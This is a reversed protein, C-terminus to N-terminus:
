LFLIPCSQIITVMWATSDGGEIDLVEEKRWISNTHYHFDDWSHPVVNNDQYVVYAHTDTSPQCQVIKLMYDQPWFLTNSYGNIIKEHTNRWLVPNSATALSRLAM